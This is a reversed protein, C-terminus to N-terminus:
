RELLGVDTNVQERSTHWAKCQWCYYVKRTDEYTHEDFTAQEVAAWYNTIRMKKCSHVSM